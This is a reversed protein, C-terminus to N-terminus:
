ERCTGRYRSPTFSSGAKKLAARPTPKAREKEGGEWAAFWVTTMSLTTSMSVVVVGVGLDFEVYM